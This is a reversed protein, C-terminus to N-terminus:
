SFLIGESKCRSKIRHQPPNHSSTFSTKNVEEKGEKEIVEAGYNGREDVAPKKKRATLSHICSHILFPYKPIYM